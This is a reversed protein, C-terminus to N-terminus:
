FSSVITLHERELRERMYKSDFAVQWLEIVNTLNWTRLAVLIFMVANQAKAGHLRTSASRRKGQHYELMRICSETPVSNNLNFQIFKILKKLFLRYVYSM